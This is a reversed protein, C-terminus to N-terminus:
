AYNPKLLDYISFSPMCELRCCHLGGGRGMGHGGDFAQRGQLGVHVPAVTGPLRRWDVVWRPRCTLSGEFFRPVALGLGM